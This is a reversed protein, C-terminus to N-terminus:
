ISYDFKNGSVSQPAPIKNWDVSHIKQLLEETTKATVRTRKVQEKAESAKKEKAAAEQKAEKSKEIRERQKDSMKELEAFFSVEGDKDISVGLRAVEENGEEELQKKMDTLKGTAENLLGLYKEKSKSDAAMEELTETDMLVSYEKNGRSLYEAAEEDSKYDAVIFDMNGYTRKLEKLLKQARSSLKVQGADAKEAKSSKATEKEKKGQVANEYYNQQYMGYSGVKNM